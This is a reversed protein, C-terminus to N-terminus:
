CFTRCRPIHWCCLNWKTLLFLYLECIQDPLPLPTDSPSANRPCIFIVLVCDSFEWLALFFVVFCFLLNHKLPSFDKCRKIFVERQTGATVDTVWLQRQSWGSPLQSKGKLELSVWVCTPVNVILCVSVWVCIYVFSYGKLDLFLM